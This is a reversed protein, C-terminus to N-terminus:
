WHRWQGGDLGHCRVWLSYRDHEVVGREAVQAGELQLAEGVGQFLLEDLGVDLAQGELLAQRQQDVPLHLGAIVAFTSPQQLASLELVRCRGQLVGLQLYVARLQDDMVALLRQRLALKRDQQFLEKLEPVTIDLRRLSIVLRARQVAADDYLRYGSESRVAPKLLGISEYFRLTKATTGLMEALQGVRMGNYAM